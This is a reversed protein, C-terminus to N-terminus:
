RKGTRAAGAGAGTVASLAGALTGGARVVLRAGGGYIM